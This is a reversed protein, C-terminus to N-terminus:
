SVPSVPWHSQDTVLIQRNRGAAWQEVVTPVICEARTLVIITTICLRDRPCLPVNDAELTVIKPSQSHISMYVMLIHYCGAVKFNLSALLSNLVFNAKSM